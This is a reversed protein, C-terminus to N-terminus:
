EAKVEKQLEQDLRTLFDELMESYEQENSKLHEGNIRKKCEFLWKKEDASLEKPEIEVLKLEDQTLLLVYGRKSNYYFYKAGKPLESLGMKFIRYM